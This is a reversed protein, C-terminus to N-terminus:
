ATRRAAGEGRRQSRLFRLYSVLTAKDDESVDPDTLMAIVEEVDAPFERAPPEGLEDDTLYGLAVAARRPDIGLAICVARVQEPEPKDALDREWRSITSRSVGSEEVLTEQSWDKRKRAERILRGFGRGSAADDMVCRYIIALAPTQM